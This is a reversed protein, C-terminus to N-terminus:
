VALGIVEFRDRAIQLGLGRRTAHQNSRETGRPVRGAPPPTGGKLNVLHVRVAALFRGNTGCTTHTIPCRADPEASATRLLQSPM